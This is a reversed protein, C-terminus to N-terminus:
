RDISNSSLSVASDNVHSIDMDTDRPSQTGASGTV